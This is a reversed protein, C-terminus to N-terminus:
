QSTRTSFPSRTRPPSVGIARPWTAVLSATPYDDHRTGRPTRRTPQTSAREQQGAEERCAVEKETEEGDNLSKLFAELQGIEM